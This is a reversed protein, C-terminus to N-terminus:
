QGYDGRVFLAGLVVDPDVKRTLLALIASAEKGEYVASTGNDASLIYRMSGYPGKFDRSIKM